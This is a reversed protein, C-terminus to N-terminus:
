RNISWLQRGNNHILPKKDGAPEIPFLTERDCPVVEVTVHALNPIQSLLSKYHEPPQPDCTAVAIIAALQRSSIKWLHQDIVRNDSDSEVLDVIHNLAEPAGDCDLLIRGTDRLLGRAWHTIILAGGIGILPDMWVWHWIKGCTLGAIALVSTLTDALVHLYAGRINHDRHASHGLANHHHHHRHTDSHKEIRQDHNHHHGPHTKAKLLLASVLNVTLGVFAVAIAENFRIPVPSFLREVSEVVMLLAAVALVVASTYGGLVSIKGTGFTFNKNRAHKRALYYAILTIGLAAAHTGMHWGDALLAMSGFILGATIEAIMTILTMTVVLLVRREAGRDPMEFFHDHKLSDLGENPM